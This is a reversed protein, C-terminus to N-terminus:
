KNRTSSPKIVPTKFIVGGHGGMFAGGLVGGNASHNQVTSKEPANGVVPKKQGATGSGTPNPSNEPDSAGYGMSGWTRPNYDPKDPRLPKAAM